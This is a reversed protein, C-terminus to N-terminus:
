DNINQAWERLFVWFEQDTRAPPTTEKLSVVTLYFRAHTGRKLAILNNRPDVLLNGAFENPVFVGLGATEKAYKITDNVPWDTGWSGLLIGNSVTDVFFDPTGIKQVGTCLSVSDSAFMECMMDRHGSFLTYRVTVDTRCGECLWGHQTMEAVAKKSTIEVIRQSRQIVDDFHVMKEGNYPKVAGVGIMGSVRLIDDGFGDTLQEDSPYWFCEALEMHPQKKAYVDITQKKDFYIRYAMIESELAVGHHHMAHYADTDASFTIQSIPVVFRTEGEAQITRFGALLSDASSVKKWM